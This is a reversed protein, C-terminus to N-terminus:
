RVNGYRHSFLIAKWRFVFWGRIPYVCAHLAGTIQGQGSSRIIRIQGLCESSTISMGVYAYIQSSKQPLRM